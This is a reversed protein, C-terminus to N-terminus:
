VSRDVSRSTRLGVHLGCSPRGAHGADEADNADDGCDARGWKVDARGIVEVGRGGLV